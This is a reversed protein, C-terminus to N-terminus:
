GTNPNNICAPEVPGVKPGVVKEKMKWIKRNTEKFSAGTHTMKLLEDLHEKFLEDADKKRKPKHRSTIRAKIWTTGFSEKQLWKDIMCIKERVEDITLSKDKTDAAENNVIKYLEWGESNRFNIIEKNARKEDPIKRMRVSM